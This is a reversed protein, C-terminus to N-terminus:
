RNMLKILISNPNLTMREGIKVTEQPFLPLVAILEYESQQEDIDELNDNIIPYNKGSEEGSEEESEDNNIKYYLGIYKIYEGDATWDEEAKPWEIGSANRIIGNVPESFPVPEKTVTFFRSVPEKTFIFNVSDFEIGLGVYIDSDFYTPNPTGFENNLITNIFKPSLMFRETSM